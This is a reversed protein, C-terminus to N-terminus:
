NIVVAGDFTGFIHPGYNNGDTLRTFGPLTQMLACAGRGAILVNATGRGAKGIINSELKAIQDRFAQKSDIYAITTSNQQPDWLFSNLNAQATANIQVIAVNMMETNIANVLDLAVEDEAVKGFRNRLAYSQELGISSKLAFIRAQLQKSALKMQVQPINPAGEYDTSYFTNIVLGTGPDSTFTLVMTGAAYNIVGSVSVGLLYGTSNDQVTSNFNLPITGSFTIGVSGPRIPTQSAGFNLTYTGTGTSTVVPAAQVRDYSYGLMPQQEIAQGDQLVTGPQINQGRSNQAILQKYYIIGIEEQMPQVSAIATLPSSGFSASIVDLAIQPLRGLQSATGEDECIRKYNEFMQLQSGLAYIDFPRIKRVKSLMSSSELANMHSRYKRYYLNASRDVQAENIQKVQGLTM